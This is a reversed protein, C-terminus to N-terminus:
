GEVGVALLVPKDFASTKGNVGVFETALCIAQGNEYGYGRVWAITNADNNTAHFKVFELFKDYGYSEYCPEYTKGNTVNVIQVVVTQIDNRNLM